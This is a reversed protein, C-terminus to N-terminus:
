RGAEGGEIDPRVAGRATTSVAVFVRTPAALPPRAPRNARGGVRGDRPRCLFALWGAAARTVNRGEVRGRRVLWTLLCPLGLAVVVAVTPPLYAGWWRWTQAEILVTVLLVTVQAISLTFPPTWGGIQGIVMPHRRAHTYTACAIRETREEAM